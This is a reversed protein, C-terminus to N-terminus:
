GDLRVTSIEVPVRTSQQDYRAWVSKEIDYHNLMPNRRWEMKLQVPPRDIRNIVFRASVVPIARDLADGGTGDIALLDM